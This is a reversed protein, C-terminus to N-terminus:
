PALASKPYFCWKFQGTKKNTKLNKMNYKITSTTGWLMGFADCMIQKCSIIFACMVQLEHLLLRKPTKQCMMKWVMDNFAKKAELEWMLMCCIVGDMWWSLLPKHSFIHSLLFFRIQLAANAFITAYLWPVHYKSLFQQPISKSVRDKQPVKWGHDFM